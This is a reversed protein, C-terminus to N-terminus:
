LSAETLHIIIFPTLVCKNTVDCQWHSTRESNLEGNKREAWIGCRSGHKILCVSVLNLTGLLTQTWDNPFRPVLAFFTLLLCGGCTVSIHIVMHGLSPVSHQCSQCSENSYGNGEDKYVKSTLRLATELMGTKKGRLGSTQTFYFKFIWNRDRRM